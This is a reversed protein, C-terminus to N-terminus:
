RPPQHLIETLRRTWKTHIRHDEQDLRVCVHFKWSTMGKSLECTAMHCRDRMRTKNGSRRSWENDDEWNHNQPFGSVRYVPVCSEILTNCLLSFFRQHLFSWSRAWGEASASPFPQCLSSLSISRIAISLSQFLPLGTQMLCNALSAPWVIAPSKRLALSQCALTALLPLGPFLQHSSILTVLQITFSSFLPSNLHRYCTVEEARSVPM